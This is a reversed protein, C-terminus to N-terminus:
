DPGRELYSLNWSARAEPPLRAHRETYAGLFRRTAPNDYGGGTLPGFHPRYRRAICSFLDDRLVKAVISAAAVSVHAEEGHDKAVLAPFRAELPSFLARGDAVIRRPPPSSLIIEAAKERELHNLEHRRVRRDIEDPDVVRVAVFLATERVIEALERRRARASESAGFSKSDCVGAKRLREAQPESVCVGVLVM